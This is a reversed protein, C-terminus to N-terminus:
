FYFKIAAQVIRHGQKQTVTGFLPTNVKGTNPDFGLTLNSGNFSWLPHNLFNYANFRFQLKKSKRSSSTRSFDWIPTSSPRDTSRRCCRRATRASRREPHRFLEPQHVSQAGPGVAPNCTLMPNLQIDNTGLLSM